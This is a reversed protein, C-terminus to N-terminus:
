LVLHCYSAHSRESARVQRLRRQQGFFKKIVVLHLQLARESVDALWFQPYVISLADMIQSSPFRQELEVAM